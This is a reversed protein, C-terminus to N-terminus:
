KKPQKTTTEAFNEDWEKQRAALTLKWTKAFSNYEKKKEPRETTVAKRTFYALMEKAQDLNRLALDRAEKATLSYNQNASM